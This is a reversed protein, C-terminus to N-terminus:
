WELFTPVTVPDQHFVHHVVKQELASNIAPTFDDIGKLVPSKSLLGRWNISDGSPLQWDLLRVLAMHAFLAQNGRAVHSMTIHTPVHTEELELPWSLFLAQIPTEFDRRVQGTGDTYFVDDCTMKWRQEVGNDTPTEAILEDKKFRLHLGSGVCLSYSFDGALVGLLNEKMATQFSINFNQQAKCLLSADFLTWIGLHKWAILIPLGLLAAYNQLRQLYDARFSLTNDKNSKVEILVPINRNKHRFVAFLDPM